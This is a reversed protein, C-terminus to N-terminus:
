FYIIIIYKRSWTIPSCERRYISKQVTEIEPKTIEHEINYVTKETLGCKFSFEERSEGLEERKAKIKIALAHFEAM